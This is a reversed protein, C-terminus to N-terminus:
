DLPCTNIKWDFDNIVKTQFADRRNCTAHISFHDNHKRSMSIWGESHPHIILPIGLKQCEISFYIDTMNTYPFWALSPKVTDSHFAMVGTGIEHVFTLPYGLPYSFIKAIDFYYSRSPRTTHFNRGHNSVVAKRHAREITGIMQHVYDDPYIIKDDVTFIYGQIQDVKYFKGVDGINGICNHSRYLNIKPHNLFSPVQEFNNLYINLLDCQPLITNITDQLAIIRSPMSAMNFTVKESNFM